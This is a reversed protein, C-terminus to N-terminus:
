SSLLLCLKWQKVRRCFGNRAQKDHGALCVRQNQAAPRRWCNNNYTALNKKPFYFWVNEGMLDMQLGVAVETIDHEQLSAQLEGGVKGQIWGFCRTSEIVRHCAILLM